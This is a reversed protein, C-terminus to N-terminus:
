GGAPGDVVRLHLQIGDLTVSPLSVEETVLGAVPYDGRTGLFMVTVAALPGAIVAALWKLVADIVDSETKRGTAVGAAHLRYTAAARRDPQLNRGRLHRTGACPLYLVRQVLFARDVRADRSVPDDLTAAQDADPWSRIACSLLAPEM